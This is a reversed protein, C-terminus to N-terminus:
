LDLVSILEAHELGLTGAPFLNFSLCYRINDSMCVDVKHTLNSPFLFLQNNEPTFTWTKSNFINRSKVPLDVAPPFLNCYNADKQFILNGSKEDVNIYLIGSLISNTHLHPDSFDGKRHRMAWSNLFKFHINDAINLYERCYEDVHNQIQTKLDDFDLIDLVNNSVSIDGNNASIRKFELFM